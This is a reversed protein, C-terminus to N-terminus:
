GHVRTSRVASACAAFVTGTRPVYSYKVHYRGKALKTFNFHQLGGSYVRYPHRVLKYVGSSNRKYLSLQVHGTPVANGARVRMRVDLHHGGSTTPVSFSCFTPVSGPYVAPAATAASPVLLMSFSLAIAAIAASILKM